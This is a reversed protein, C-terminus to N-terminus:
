DALDFGHLALSRRLATRDREILGDTLPYGFREAGRPLVVPAGLGVRVTVLERALFREKGFGFHLSIGRDFVEFRWPITLAVLAAPLAFLLASTAGGTVLALAAFVVMVTPGYRLFRSQGVYVPIPDVGNDLDM